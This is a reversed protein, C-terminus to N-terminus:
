SAPGVSAIERPGRALRVATLAHLRGMSPCIREDLLLVPECYSRLSAPPTDPRLGPTLTPRYRGSGGVVM